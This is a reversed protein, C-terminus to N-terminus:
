FPIKRSWAPVKLPKLPRVGRLPKWPSLQRLPQLPRLSRMPKLIGLHTADASFLFVAGKSDRIHGDAWWGVHAGAWDYVSNRDIFALNEGDLGYIKGSDHLWAYVEGNADFLAEM